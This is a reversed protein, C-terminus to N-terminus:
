THTRMVITHSHTPPSPSANPSFIDLCVLPYVQLITSLITSLFHSPSPFPKIVFVYFVLKAERLVLSSSYQLSSTHLLMMWSVRIFCSFSLLDDDNVLFFLLVDVSVFVNSLFIFFCKEQRFHSPTM